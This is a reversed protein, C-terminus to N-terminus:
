IKHNIQIWPWMTPAIHAKKILVWKVWSPKANNIAEILAKINEELKEEEFSVKWIWLHILSNKDLKFEVRWKKIEKITDEIKTNVTWAKPSPMLWKPWLIKAVKAIDRMMDPTTVLFDFNINWNEIEALLDEKWAIDAWANKADKLKEESVFAAVKVQKWNGHPLVITSRINQDNYKPNANTQIHIEVKWDFQTYSVKKILSVAEDISYVKEKEVLKKADNYKKWHKM